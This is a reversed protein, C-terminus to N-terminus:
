LADLLDKLYQCDKSQLCLSHFIDVQTVIFYVLNKQFM